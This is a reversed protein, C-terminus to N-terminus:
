VINIINTIKILNVGQYLPSIRVCEGNVTIFYQWISLQLYFVKVNKEM